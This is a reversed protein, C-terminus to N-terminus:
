RPQPTQKNPYFAHRGQGVLRARMRRTARRIRAILIKHTDSAAQDAKMETMSYPM